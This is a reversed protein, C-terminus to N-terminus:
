GAAAPHRMLQAWREAVRAGVREWLAHNARERESLGAWWAPPADIEPLGPAARGHSEFIEAALVAGKERADAAKRHAALAQEVREAQALAVVIALLDATSRGCREATGALRSPTRSMETAFQLLPRGSPLELRVADRDAELQDCLKWFVEVDADTLTRDPIRLPPEPGGGPWLLAAVVGLLAAACLLLWARPTM